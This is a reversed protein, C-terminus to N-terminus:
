TKYLPRIFYSKIETTISTIDSCGAIEGQSLPGHGGKYELMFNDNRYM